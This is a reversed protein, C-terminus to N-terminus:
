ADQSDRQSMKLKLKLVDVIADVADENDAIARIESDLLTILVTMREDHQLPWMLMTGIQMGLREGFSASSYPDLHITHIQTM